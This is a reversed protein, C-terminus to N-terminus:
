GWQLIAALRLDAGRATQSLKSFVVTGSHTTTSVPPQGRQPHRSLFDM